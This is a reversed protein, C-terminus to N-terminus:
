CIGLGPGPAETETGKNERSLVPCVYMGIETETTKCITEVTSSPRSVGVSNVARIRFRLVTGRSLNLSASTADPKSVNYLLRFVVPNGSSEQEILYHTIPADDISPGPFWYVDATWDNCDTITVNSPPSPVDLFLRIYVAM